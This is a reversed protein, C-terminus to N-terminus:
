QAQEMKSNDRKVFAMNIGSRNEVMNEEYLEEQFTHAETILAKLYQPQHIGARPADYVHLFLHRCTDMAVQLYSKANDNMEQLSKSNWFLDFSDRFDKWKWAPVIVIRRGKMITKLSSGPPSERVERYGCVEGPFLAKLYIEAVYLWPPIDVAAYMLQPQHRLFVEAQGGYGSGLEVVSRVRDLGIAAARAYLQQYGLSRFSYTRGSISVTDDPNGVMSDELVPRGHSEAQLLLYQLRLRQRFAHDQQRILMDQTEEFYRILGGVGPLRRALRLGMAGRGTLRPVKGPNSPLLSRIGTRIPARRFNALQEPKRLYQELPEVIDRWYTTAQWRPDARNHDAVMLDLLELDPQM